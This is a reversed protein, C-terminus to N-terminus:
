NNPSKIVYKIWDIVNNWYDIYHKNMIMYRHQETIPIFTTAIRENYKKSKHRLTYVNNKAIKIYTDTDLELLNKILRLGEIGYDNWKSHLLKLRETQNRWAYGMYMRLFIKLCRSTNPDEYRANLYNVIKESTM